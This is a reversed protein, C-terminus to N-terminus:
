DCRGSFGERSCSMKGCVLCGAKYGDQDIPGKYGSERLDYFRKGEATLPKGAWDTTRGSKAVHKTM